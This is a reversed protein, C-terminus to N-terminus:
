NKNSSSSVQVIGIHGISNAHGVTYLFTIWKSGNYAVGTLKQVVTQQCYDICISQRVFLWQPSSSLQLAIWVRAIASVSFPFTTSSLTRGVRPIQFAHLVRSKKITDQMESLASVKLQCNALASRYSPHFWNLNLLIARGLCHNAPLANSLNSDKIFFQFRVISDM